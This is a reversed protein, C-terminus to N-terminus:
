RAGMVCERGNPGTFVFGGHAKCDQNEQQIQQKRQTWHSKEADNFLMIISALICMGVFGIAVYFLEESM